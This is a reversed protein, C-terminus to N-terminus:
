GAGLTSLRQELIRALLAPQQLPLGHGVGPLLRLASGARSVHLLRASDRMVARERSGALVLARPAEGAHEPGRAWGAPPAFRLNEGVSAILTAKTIRASGELYDPLLADPVLLEKAQVRAFRRWRALPAAAALMALTLRPMAIRKAQASVVVADAVLAPRRAALLVALQAGLSFGLVVAGGPARDELERELELVTAEHSRYDTSAGAGHGPLDPVIARVPVALADLMPRWMWGAVGGGHLLLVPPADAPGSEIVHM